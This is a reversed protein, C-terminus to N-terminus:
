IIDDLFVVFDDKIIKDSVVFDDAPYGLVVHGVGVYDESLDWVKLLEKGQLSDFEERARHIWCSGLGISSAANLLNGIVLSADEVYTPINKDALVIILTSANYFPDFDEPLNDLVEKPYFSKNWESFRKIIDKRQLVLIKPSQANMGSPANVAAELITNLDERSVQKDNFKKVSRRTKLVDITSQM